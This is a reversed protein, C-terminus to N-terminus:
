KRIVEVRADNMVKIVTSPRTNMKNRHLNVVYGAKSLIDESIENFTKPTTQGSINASTSVIPRRFKQILKRCFAHNVVRIGITDDENILNEAIRIPKEYVITTPKETNKLIEFAVEPVEEVYEQLMKFNAVLCIMAKKPPRNKMDFVKDVASANTADCGIGWVTDTPYVITQGKKLASLCENIEKDM